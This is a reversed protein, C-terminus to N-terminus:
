KIRKAWEGLNLRIGKGEAIEQEAELVANVAEDEALVDIAQRVAHAKTASLGSEVRREIFREQEKTIPVSITINKTM